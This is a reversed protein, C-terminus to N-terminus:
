ASSIRLPKITDMTIHPAIWAVALNIQPNHFFVFLYHHRRIDKDQHTSHHDTGVKSHAKPGGEIWHSKSVNSNRGSAKWDWKVFSKVMREINSASINLIPYVDNKKEPHLDYVILLQPPGLIDRKEAHLDFVTRLRWIYKVVPSRGVIFWLSFWYIQCTFSTFQKPKEDGFVQSTQPWSFLLHDPWSRNPEFIRNRFM